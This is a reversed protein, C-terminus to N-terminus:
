IAEASDLDKKPAPSAVLMPSVKSGKFGYYTIYIYCIAPIIFALQIGISDALMGQFLPILAGGVIAMVLLSSGQSALAGLNRIALTFITPFMISNFFGTLLIAYMATHGKTMITILLLICNIVGAFGLAKEPNIKTLLAAGLFRGIMAGGWFMSVYGAANEESLGAIEPQSLFNILFSGVSVEGGVYMFICIVGMLLHKHKLVQSFGSSGTDATEIKPLKSIWIFLALLFLAGGLALYPMKVIQAQTNNFDALQLPSLANLQAATLTVMSGLIFIKGFHPAVTTGLSNFAQTLNLRSSATASKGLAAVYPNAAVQLLTIGSALIFLAALFFGYMKTEAAPYFMLCGLGAIILGIIIGKKYGIRSVIKGAPLSMIFYAGFFTFQILMAQTYNLDFLKKLYPILIDNLCTIFGWMFFLTTVVVLPMTYNQGEVYNSKTSASSQIGGAM